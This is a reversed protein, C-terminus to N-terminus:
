AIQTSPAAPQETAPGTSDPVYDPMFAGGAFTGGILTPATGAAEALGGLVELTEAQSLRRFTTESISELKTTM